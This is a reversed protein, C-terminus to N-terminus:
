TVRVIAVKVFGRLNILHRSEGLLKPKFNNPWAEEKASPQDLGHLHQCGFAFDLVKLVIQKNLILARIASLTVLIIMNLCCKAIQGYKSFM